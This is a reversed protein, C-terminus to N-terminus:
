CCRAADPIMQAMQSFKAADLLVQCCRPADLLMQCCSDVDPSAAGPVMQLWRAGDPVMQAGRRLSGLGPAWFDLFLMWKQLVTSLLVLRSGFVM